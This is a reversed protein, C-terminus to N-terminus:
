KSGPMNKMMEKQYISMLAMLRKSEYVSFQAFKMAESPNMAVRQQLAQVQPKIEAEKVRWKEDLAKRQAEAAKSTDTLLLKSNSLYDTIADDYLACVKKEDPDTINLSDLRTAKPRYLPPQIQRQFRLLPNGKAHLLL